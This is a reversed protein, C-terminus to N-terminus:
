SQEEKSGKECARNNYETVPAEGLLSLYYRIKKLEDALNFQSM